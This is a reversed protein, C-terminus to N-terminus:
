IIATRLLDTQALGSLPMDKINGRRGNIGKAATFSFAIFELLHVLHM